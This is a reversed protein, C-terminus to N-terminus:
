SMHRDGFRFRLGDVRSFGFGSVRFGFRCSAPTKMLRITTAAILVKSSLKCSRVMAPDNAARAVRSKAAGADGKACGLNTRQPCTNLYREHRSCVCMVCVDCM